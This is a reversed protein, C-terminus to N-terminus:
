RPDESRLVEHVPGICVSWSTTASWQSVYYGSSAPDLKGEVFDRVIQHLRVESRLEEPMGALHLAAEVTSARALGVVARRGFDRPAPADDAAYLVSFIWHRVKM